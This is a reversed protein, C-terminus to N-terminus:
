QPCMEKVQCERMYINRKEEFPKEREHINLKMSIANVLRFAILHHKNLTAM